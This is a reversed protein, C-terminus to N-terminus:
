RTLFTGKKRNQRKKKGPHNEEFFNAGPLELFSSECRARGVADRQKAPRTRLAARRLGCPPANLAFRLALGADPAVRQRGVQLRAEAGRPPGSSAVSSKGAAGVETEQSFDAHAPAGQPGTYRFGAAKGARRDRALAAPSWPIRDGPGRVTGRVGVSQEARRM